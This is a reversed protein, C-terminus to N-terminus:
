KTVECSAAPRRETVGPNVRELELLQADFAQVFLNAHARYLPPVESIGDVGFVAHMPCNSWAHCDWAAPNAVDDLPKGTITLLQPVMEEVYTKWAFGDPLVTEDSLDAGSLVAGRLYAGRLDAGSLYAGSLNADRLVAGRLDADSLDADSLDAGSLYAGRLDAGSLYAGSLYAGSLYAGRLDAGSLDAGSLVARVGQPRGFYWDKHLSLIESIQEATPTIGLWTAPLASATTM